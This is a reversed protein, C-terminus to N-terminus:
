NIKSQKIIDKFKNKYNIRAENSQRLIYAPHALAHFTTNTSADYYTNKCGHLFCSVSIKGLCIAVIPKIVMIERVKYMSCNMIESYLPSSNNPPSCFLINSIYCESPELGSERIMEFVLNGSASKGESMPIGTINGGIQSPAEGVIMVKNKANGWSFAIKNRSSVLRGCKTCAMVEKRIDEITNIM